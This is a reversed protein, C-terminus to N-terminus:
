GWSYGSPSHHVVVHPVNTLYDYGVRALVIQDTYETHLYDSKNM